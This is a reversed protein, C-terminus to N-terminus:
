RYIWYKSALFGLVALMADIVPKALWVMWLWHSKALTTVALTSLMTIFIWAVCFKLLHRRGLASGAEESFTYRGNLWFGLTAGSVRGAINAVPVRVGLWTLLVFCGWDILLQLLGVVLFSLGQSLM